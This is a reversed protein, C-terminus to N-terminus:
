PIELNEKILNGKSEFTRKSTAIDTIIKDFKENLEEKELKLKALKKILTKRKIKLNSLSIKDKHYQKM